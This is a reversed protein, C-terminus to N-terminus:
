GNTKEEPLLALLEAVTARIADANSNLGNRVLESIKDALGRSTLRRRESELYTMHGIYHAEQERKHTVFRGSWSDSTGYERGRATFRLEFSEERPEGDKFTKRVFRAGVGGDKYVKTVVGKLPPNRSVGSHFVYLDDGLAYGYNSANM